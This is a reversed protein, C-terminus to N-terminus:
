DYRGEVTSSVVGAVTGVVGAVTGVVVVASTTVVGIGVQESSHVQVSPQSPSCSSHTALAVHLM